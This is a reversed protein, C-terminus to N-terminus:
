RSESDLPFFHLTSDLMDPIVLVGAPEDLYFDAAAKLGEALVLPEGGSAPIKWVKGEVWSSVVLNNHTDRGIGDAGRFGKMIITSAGERISLLNGTFFDGILIENSPGTAVGNPCPMTSNPEVAVTVKGEWTVRYIRGVSPLASAEASELPWLKGDKDRMETTAGMDSVYIDGNPAAAVDNLMGIPFPFDKDEAVIEKEGKANIRWVKTMDATILHERVFVIGKPNELGAAFDTVVKGAIRRVVGDGPVEKDNILTVFYDGGFGRTVSEPNTGVHLPERAALQDAGLALGCGTIILTFLQDNVFNTLTNVSLVSSNSIIV